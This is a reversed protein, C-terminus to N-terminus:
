SKIPVAGWAGRRLGVPSDLEKLPICPISIDELQPITPCTKQPGHYPAAAPKGKGAHGVRGPDERGGGM